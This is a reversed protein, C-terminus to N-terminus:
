WRHWRLPGTPQVPERVPGPHALRGASLSDCCRFTGWFNLCHSPSQLTCTMTSCSVQFRLTSASPSASTPSQPTSPLRPPPASSRLVWRRHCCAWMLTNVFGRQSLGGLSLMLVATPNFALQVVCTCGLTHFPSPSPVWKQECFWAAVSRGSFADARCHPQVCASRRMYLRPCPLSLPLPGVEEM